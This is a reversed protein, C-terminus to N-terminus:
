RSSTAISLIRASVSVITGGENDEREGKWECKGKVTIITRGRETGKEGRRGGRRRKWGSVERRGVYLERGMEMGKRMCTEKKGRGKRKRKRREKREEIQKPTL